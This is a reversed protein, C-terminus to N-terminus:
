REVPLSIDVSLVQLAVNGQFLGDALYALGTDTVLPLGALVLTELGPRFRGLTAFPGLADDDVEIM